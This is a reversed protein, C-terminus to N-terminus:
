YVRIALRGRHKALSESYDSKVEKVGQRIAPLKKTSRAGASSRQVAELFRNPFSVAKSGVSSSLRASSKPHRLAKPAAIVLKKECVAKAAATLSHPLCYEKRLRNPAPHGPNEAAEATRRLWGNMELTRGGLLLGALKITRNRKRM